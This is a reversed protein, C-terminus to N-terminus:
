KGHSKILKELKDKVEGVQDAKAMSLLMASFEQMGEKPLTGATLKGLAETLLTFAEEKNEEQILELISDMDNKGHLMTFISNIGKEM